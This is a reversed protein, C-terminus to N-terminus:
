SDPDDLTSTAFRIFCLGKSFFSVHFRFMPLQRVLHGINSSFDALFSITELESHIDQPSRCGGGVLVPNKERMGKYQRNFIMAPGLLFCELFAVDKLQLQQKKGGWAGLICDHCLDWTENPTKKRDPFFPKMDVVRPSSGADQPHPNKKKTGLLTIYTITINGMPDM